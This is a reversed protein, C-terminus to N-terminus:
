AYVGKHKYIKIWGEVRGKEAEATLKKAKSYM